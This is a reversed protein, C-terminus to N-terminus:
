KLMKKMKRLPATLQWSISNTIQYIQREFDLRTKEKNATLDELNSNVELIQNNQEALMKKLNYNEAFLECRQGLFEFYDRFINMFETDHEDLLEILNSDIDNGIFVVGLGHGHNFKLTPYQIEVERYFKNVGFTLQYENIDHLIIIGKEKNLKEYALSFDSAVQNYSHFGDIHILDISDDKIKLLAEDFNGRIFTSFSQYRAHNIKFDNFVSDDFKGAQTDGAWHDIAICETELNLQRVAECFAFYSVGNHVGLELFSKPKTQEILWFAFPVHQYWASEGFNVPLFNAVKSSLLKSNKMYGMTKLPGSACIKGRFNFFTASKKIRIHFEVNVRM